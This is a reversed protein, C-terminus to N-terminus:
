NQTVFNIIKGPVYVVQRVEKGILHKGVNESKKVANEVLKKDRSEEIKIRITHRVKGNVQVVITTEEEGLVKEDVEPWSQTHVSGRNGIRNWLEEPIFPAFISLAILFKNISEIDINSKNKQIFNQFEMLSAIATNFRLNEVDGAVKKILKNIEKAVVSNASKAPKKSIELTNQWVRNLFKYVGIIARDSFDGGHDYPGIFLLYMRLTDSGYSEMYENPNVINGRSKSMKYGDKIILGHARFKKFPEEFDIHGLDHLAMTIFRTYLLHMVAHENGGIYMDAPLWKKTLEKDFPAQGSIPLGVSPYRLFYWSSDLFTDSVDTERRAEKGCEPCNVRVFSPDQALPSLDSGKPQYDKIHPLKVPLNKEPVPYWGQMKKGLDNIKSRQDKLVKKKAEATSFWSKDQDACSECYVMPIPPGWYRQRSILWDRLHYNFTKKGLHNQEIYNSIKKIAEKSDLGDFNASNILKGDGVYAREEKVNEWVFRQSGIDIFKDVQGAKLWLLKHKQSEEKTIEKKTNNVLEFLLGEADALRNEKKHAAFYSGYLRGLSKVFKVNRYGTEEAIEREAALIPDEHEEVGGVIFTHWGYKNWDLVLYKDSLRDYLICYVTRREITKFKAEPRSKEDEIFPAIVQNVSLRYKKAFDFDRQDHAPVAMIAGTGYGMVVYDAIWIPIEKKTFPNIAYSGTFVGTKSKSRELESAKNADAIYRKNAEIYKASSIRTALPHEPAIVMFTAGYITDPRTTYVKLRDKYGKIPFEIIVGESKGIWNRQMQKTTESWDIGARRRGAPLEPETLHDLNKLLRDAYQTIKFFWQELEKQIVSSNCRECKGSVVQEDALVTKCSPCWDVPAKKRVALGYKFLQIFLWQTWRYYEIDSTIVQHDWDFLAGLRKLQSERFYSTTSDILDKPHIRKSIAYNESHIGFSDFGMPEFVDYGQMRKFRGFSDSGGFAYVHGVHLGEGSPYPFMMLNYFPKKAKKLDVKFTKEKEWRTSWKKEIELPDYRDIEM